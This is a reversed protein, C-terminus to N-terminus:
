REVIQGITLDCYTWGYDNVGYQENAWRECEDNTDASHQDIVRGTELSYISITM